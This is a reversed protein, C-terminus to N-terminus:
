DESWDVQAVLCGDEYYTRTVNWSEQKALNDVFQKAVKLSEKRGLYNIFANIAQNLDNYELDLRATGENDVPFCISRPITGDSNYIMGIVFQKYCFYLGKRKEKYLDNFYRKINDANLLNNM